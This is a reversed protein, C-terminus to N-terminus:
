VAPARSATLAGMSRLTAGTRANNNHQTLVDAAHAGGWGLGIACGLIGAAVLCRSPMWLKM